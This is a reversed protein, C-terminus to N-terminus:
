VVVTMGDHAFRVRELQEALAAYDDYSRNWYEELHVLLVERASVRKALALTEEFTFLTRRSVHDSPFIFGEKLGTEFLGPQIILLDAGRVEEREEPFPKIDCPAYVVKKGGQEFVYLFVSRTRREVLVATVSLEGVKTHQQFSVTRIFGQREYFAALPGYVSRIRALEGKLPGPLLLAMEKGPSVEWTRFDIAIQEVVRIGEVHDPDLHTYLVADIREIRSRNLQSAIEAPTDILLHADHIFLAPGTREYPEGRSRAEECIRCPCLPKPIVMCGGSGLVTIKMEFRDVGHFLAKPSPTSSEKKM